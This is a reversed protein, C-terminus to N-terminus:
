KWGVGRKGKSKVRGRSGGDYDDKPNPITTYRAGDHSVVKGDRFMVIGKGRHRRSGGKTPVKRAGGRHKSGGKGGGGGGGGAGAVVQEDYRALVRKRVAAADAAADARARAAKDDAARRLADARALTFDGHDALWRAAREGDGGALARLVHRAALRADVGGAPACMGLLFEVARNEAELQEATRAAGASAAGVAAAAAAAPAAVGGGSSAAAAGGGGGNEKASGATATTTPARKAIAAKPAATPTTRLAKGKDKKGGSKGRRRGPKPRARSRRGGGKKQPQPTDCMECTGRALANTFTCAPCTWADKTTSDSSAAAVAPAADGTAAAAGADGDRGGGGNAADAGLAGTSAGAAAPVSAGRRVDSLLATLAEQWGEHESLGPLMSGCTSIADAVDDPADDDAADGLINAAYLLIPEDIDLKLKSLLARLHAEAGSGTFTAM